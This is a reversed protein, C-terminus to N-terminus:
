WEWKRGKTEVMGLKRLDESKQLYLTRDICGENRVYLVSIQFTM